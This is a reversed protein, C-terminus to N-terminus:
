PMLGTTVNGNTNTQFVDDTYVPNNDVDKQLAPESSDLKNTEKCATLVSLVIVAIIGLRM